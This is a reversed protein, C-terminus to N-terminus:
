PKAPAILVFCLVITQVSLQPGVLCMCLISVFVTYSAVYLTDAVVLCYPYGQRARATSRRAPAVLVFCLVITHASLQPCVLYMCLTLVFVTLCVTYNM